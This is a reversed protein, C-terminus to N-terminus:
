VQRRCLALDLRSWYTDPRRDANGTARSLRLEHHCPDCLAAGYILSFGSPCSHPAVTTAYAVRIFIRRICSRPFDELETQVFMALGSVLSFLGLLRNGSIERYLTALLYVPLAAFFFQGAVNKQGHIGAFGIVTFAEPFVASSVLDLCGIILFARFFIALVINPNSFCTALLGLATAELIERSARRITLEPYDSWVTSLVIMLLLPAMPILAAWFVRAPIRYRYVLICVACFEVPVALQNYLNGEDSLPGTQDSGFFLNAALFAFPQFFLLGYLLLDRIAAALARDTQHDPPITSRAHMSTVSRQLRDSNAPM